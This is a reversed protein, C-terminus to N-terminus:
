EPTQGYSFFGSHSFHGTVAELSQAESRSELM